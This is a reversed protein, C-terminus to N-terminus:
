QATDRMLPSLLTKPGKKCPMRNAIQLVSLCIRLREKETNLMGLYKLREECFWNRMGLHNSKDSGILM